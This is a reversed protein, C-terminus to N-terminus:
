YLIWGNTLDIKVPKDLKINVIKGEELKVKGGKFIARILRVFWNKRATTDINGSFPANQNMPTCIAKTDLVLKGNRIFLKAPIVNTIEGSVASGQAILIYNEKTVLHKNAKTLFVECQKNIQSNLSNLLVVPIKAGAPITAIAGDITVGEIVLGEARRANMADQLRKNPNIRAEIQMNYLSAAIEARSIPKNPNNYVGIARQAKEMGLKDINLASVMICMAEAKTINEEPRFLNDPTNKILDFGIARQIINFAWHKYPVDKFEFTRKLPANEQHLAKIVMTAFEARTASEDAKFTGDPYGVLIDEDTLAQIQKYAWHNQQLDPYSKAMASCNLMGAIIIAAFLNKVHMKM